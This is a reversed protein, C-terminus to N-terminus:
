ALGGDDNGYLRLWEAFTIREGRAGFTFVFNAM